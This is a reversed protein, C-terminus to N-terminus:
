VPPLSPAFGGAAVAGPGGAVVPALRVASRLRLPRGRLLGAYPAPRARTRAGSALPPCAPRGSWSRLPTGGRLVASVSWLSATGGAVMRPRWSPPPIHAFAGGHDSQLAHVTSAAIPRPPCPATTYRRTWSPWPRRASAPPRPSIASKGASRRPGTRRAARDALSPHRRGPPRRTRRLLRAALHHEPGPLDGIPHAPRTRRRPRPGLRGYPGGAAALRPHGGALWEGVRLRRRGQGPVGVPQEGGPRCRAARASRPSRAALPLYPRGRVPGPRRAPRCAGWGWGRGPTRGGRLGTRCRAPVPPSISAIGWSAWFRTTCGNGVSPGAGTSPSDPAPVPCCATSPVM